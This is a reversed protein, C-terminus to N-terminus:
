GNDQGFIEIADDVLSSDSVHDSLKFGASNPDVVCKLAIPRGFVKALARSLAAHNVQDELRDKHFKYKVALELTSDDFFSVSSNHLMIALSRNSSELVGVVKRWNEQPVTQGSQRDASDTKSKDSAQNSIVPVKKSDVQSSVSKSQSSELKLSGDSPVMPQTFSGESLDILALELPLQPVPSYRVQSASELLRKIARAASSSATQALIQRLNQVILGILNEFDVGQNYLEDLIALSKKADGKLISDTLESAAQDSSLGLIARVRALSVQQNEQSAVQDLISIGDRYSGSSLQAIKAIADQDFSWQEQDIIKALYEALDTQSARHFDFRQTRSIITAPVKYPETTAMIMLVHAPPEELTKLLANFAERTLMHVEDIIYVKKLAQTPAFAIRQRLQRIDDIGRNSAADIEIVDTLSGKTIALCTGCNNCPELTTKKKIKSGQTTFKECNVAKALLRATTTKGLGRPGSFLYAHSVRDNKLAALLTERVHDQGVLDKFQQPRYKHYLAM